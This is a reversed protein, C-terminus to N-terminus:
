LPLIFWTGAVSLASARLTELFPDYRSVLDGDQLLSCVAECILPCMVDVFRPCKWFHRSRSATEQDDRNNQQLPHSISENFACMEVLGSSNQSAQNGELM